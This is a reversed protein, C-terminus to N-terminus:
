LPRPLREPPWVVVDLRRSFHLLPPPGQLRLGHPEALEQADIEAHAVQLPWPWHHVEARFLAGGKAQAYLCYRETLFYELTGPRAPVVPAIPGYTVAVRARPGPEVRESKFHIRDQERALAIRARVYPLHYFRRAAWVALPNTADLSLFWVGPKGGREVYLRLNLEPFASIWPLNPLWRYSVGTMRFPVVGIWSTGGFEQVTLEAPVLHRVAAVPIPWHAFLLDHWSQRM